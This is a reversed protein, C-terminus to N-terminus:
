SREQRVEPNDPDNVSRTTSVIKDKTINLNMNSFFSRGSAVNSSNYRLNIRNNFEAALSPNGITVYQPNSNNIVPQLQNYSPQNSRGNYNINFEKTRSFKYQFR